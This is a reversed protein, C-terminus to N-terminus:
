YGNQEVGYTAQETTYGEYVLQDILGQRSFSMISLYNAAAKAAQENWDAGCNDAAYVAEDHSYQEYELQEILGSYSFPMVNLYSYASGLANKMGITVTETDAPGAQITNGDPEIDNTDTIAATKISIIIGLFDRSFKAKEVASADSYIMTSFCYLQEGLIFAYVEGELIYGDDDDCTFKHYIGPQDAITTFEANVESYDVSGASFWDIFQQKDDESVFAKIPSTAEMWFNAITPDDYQPYYFISTEGDPEKEWSSPIIYTVDCFGDAILDDNNTSELVENSTEATSAGCAALCLTLSLLMTFLLAKKM